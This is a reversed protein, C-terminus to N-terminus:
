SEKKAASQEASYRRLAEVAGHPILAAGHERLHEEFGPPPALPAAFESLDRAFHLALIYEKNYYYLASACPEAAGACRLVAEWDPLAYFRAAPRTHRLFILTCGRGPFVEATGGGALATLVTRRLARDDPQNGYITMCEYDM